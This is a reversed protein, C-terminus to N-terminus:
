RGFVPFVAGRRSRSAKEAELQTLYAQLDSLKTPNYTIDEGNSMRIRVVKTGTQLAHLAAYAQDLRTQVPSDTM